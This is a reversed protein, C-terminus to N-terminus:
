FLVLPYVKIVAVFKQPQKSNEIDVGDKGEIVTLIAKLPYSYSLNQDKVFVSFYDANVEVLQAKKINASNDYNIGIVRDKYKELLIQMHSGKELGPEHQPTAAAAASVKKKAAAINAQTKAQAAKKRKLAAAKALVLKQKKLAQAKVLAAKQKKLTQAKALDAKPKHNVQAEARSESPASEESKDPLVAAVPEVETEVELVITDGLSKSTPGAKADDAAAAKEKPPIDEVPKTEAEQVPKETPSSMEPTAPSASDQSTAESQAPEAKTEGPADPEGTEDGSIDAVEPEPPLQADATVTEAQREQRDIPIVNESAPKTEAESEQSDPKEDPAPNAGAEPVSESGSADVPEVEASDELDQNLRGSAPASKLDQEGPAPKSETEDEISTWEDISGAQAETASAFTEASAPSEAPQGSVDSEFHEKAASPIEGAMDSVADATRTQNQPPLPPPSASGQAKTATDLNEAQSSQAKEAMVAGCYTCAGAINNLTHGCTPCSMLNSDMSLKSRIIIEISNHCLIANALRATLGIILINSHQGSTLNYCQNLIIDIHKSIIFSANSLVHVTRYIADADVKARIM